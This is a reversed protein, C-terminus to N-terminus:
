GEDLALDRLRAPRRRAWRRAAALVPTLMASGGVLAVLPDGFFVAHGLTSMTAVFVYVGILAGDPPDTPPLLRDLLMMVGGSTLTWGAFNSVPIGRYRGPQEWRWYGEAVMQPDLFADWATLCGAAAFVRPGPRLPGWAAAAIERAPLALAFWALPVALPVGGATPRLAGTYRYRGFPVGTATGAAEVALTCAGVVGTAVLARRGGWRQAARVATTAALGAVVANAAGARRGRRRLPTAVMAGAALAFAALAVVDAGRGSPQTVKADGPRSFRGLAGLHPRRAPM